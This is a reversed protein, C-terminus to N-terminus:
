KGWEWKILGCDYIRHLGLKKSNEWESLNPDFDPFTSSLSSRRTSQKSKVVQTAACWIVKYTPEAVSVQKFGLIGYMEGSFMQYDSYSVVSTPNKDRLFATFLRSAGGVVSGRTAYRVLEYQGHEKKSGRTSVTHAFVMCAVLREKHYLCYCYGNPPPGQVHTRKLFRRTFDDLKSIRIECSRAYVRFQEIGLLRTLYTKTATRSHEWDHSWVTLTRYGQERSQLQEKTDQVYQARDFDPNITSHTAVTRCLIKLKKSKSTITSHEINVKVKVGYSRIYTALTDIFPFKEEIQQALREQLKPNDWWNKDLQIWCGLKNTEVAWLVNSSSKAKERNIALENGTHGSLLTYLCKVEVFKEISPIWFDPRWKYQNRYEGVDYQTKTEPYKALLHPLVRVEAGSGVRYIKDGIPVSICRFALAKLLTSEKGLAYHTGNEPDNLHHQRIKEQVEESAFAEEVGYRKLWTPRIKTIRIIESAGANIHGYRELNTAQTQAVSEPNHTNHNYGTRKKYTTRSKKTREDIEEKPKKKWTRSCEAAKEPDQSHHSYQGGTKELYNDKKKQQIEPIQSPNEYQGSTKKLITKRSKQNRANFDIKSAGAVMNEHIEAKRQESNSQRTNSISARRQLEREPNAVRTLKARENLLKKSIAKGKVTKFCSDCVDNKPFFKFCCQCFRSNAANKLVRALDELGNQALWSFRKWVDLHKEAMIKMLSRSTLSSDLLKTILKADKATWDKPSHKGTVKHLNAQKQEKSGYKFLHPHRLPYM